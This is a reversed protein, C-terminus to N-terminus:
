EVDDAAFVAECAAIYEQCPSGENLSASLWPAIGSIAAQCEALEAKPRQDPGKDPAAAQQSDERLADDTRERLCGACLVRDAGVGVPVEKRGCDSCKGREDGFTYHTLLLELLEARTM